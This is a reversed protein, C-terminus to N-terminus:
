GPDASRCLLCKLETMSCLLQLVTITVSSHMQARYHNTKTTVNRKHHFRCLSLFPSSYHSFIICFVEKGQVLVYLFGRRLERRNQIANLWCFVGASARPNLICDVSHVLVKVQMSRHNQVSSLSAFSISRTTTATAGCPESHAAFSRPM